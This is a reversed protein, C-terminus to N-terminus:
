QSVDRTEKFPFAPTAFLGLRLLAPNAMVRLVSPPLRGGMSRVRLDGGDGVGGSPGGRAVPAFPGGGSQGARDDRRGRAQWTWM